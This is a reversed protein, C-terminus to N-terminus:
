DVVNYETLLHVLYRRALAHMEAGSVAEFVSGRKERQRQSM